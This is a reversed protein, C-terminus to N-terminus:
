DDRNKRKKDNEKKEKKEKDDKKRGLFGGLAKIGKNVGDVIVNKDNQNNDKVTIKGESVNPKATIKPKAVIPKKTDLNEVNNNENTTNTPNEPDSFKITPTPNSNNITPATITNNPSNSPPSDLKNNSLSYFVGGLALVVGAVASIILPTKKSPVQPVQPVQNVIPTPFAVKETPLEPLPLAALTNASMQSTVAVKTTGTQHYQTKVAENDLTQRAEPISSSTKTTNPILVIPDNAQKLEQSNKSFLNSSSLGDIGSPALSPNENLVNRLLSAFETASSLRDSRKKKLARVIVSDFPQLSPNSEALSRPEQFLHAAIIKEITGYFPPRGSLMEYTIIGLAYIDAKHDVVEGDYFEPGMYYPTGFVEGTKTINAGSGEEDKVIKALGFDVVKIIPESEGYQKLMINEPKLDRHIIGSNHAAAVASCIQS